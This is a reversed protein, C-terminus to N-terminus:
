VPLLMTCLPIKGAELEVNLNFGYDNLYHLFPTCLTLASQSIAFVLWRADFLLSNVFDEIIEEINEFKFRINM